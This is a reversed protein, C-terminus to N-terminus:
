KMFKWNRYCVNANSCFKIYCVSASWNNSGFVFSKSNLSDRWEYVVYVNSKYTKRGTGAETKRLNLKEMFKNAKGGPNGSKEQYLM